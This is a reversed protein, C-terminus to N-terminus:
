VGVCGVNVSVIMPVELFCRVCGKILLSIAVVDSRLKNKRYREILAFVANFDGFYPRGKFGTAVVAMEVTKETFGSERVFQLIRLVNIGRMVCFTSILFIARSIVCYAFYYSGPGQM